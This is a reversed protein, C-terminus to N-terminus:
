LRRDLLMMIFMSAPLILFFLFMGAIKWRRRWKAKRIAKARAIARDMQIREEITTSFADYPKSVKVVVTSRM